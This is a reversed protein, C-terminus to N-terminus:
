CPKAEVVGVAKRDVYLLSDAPGSAGPFETAAIGRGAHLNLERYRQVTWGAAALQRDITERARQEPPLPL